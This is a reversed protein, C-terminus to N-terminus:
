NEKETARPLRYMIECIDDRYNDDRNFVFGFSQYFKTLRIYNSGFGTTPHLTVICQERDAYDTLLHLLLRAHGVGRHQPPIEILYLHIINKYRGVDFQIGYMEKTERSIMDLYKDKKM